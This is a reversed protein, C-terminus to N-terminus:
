KVWLEAGTGSFHLANLSVVDIWTVAANHVGTLTSIGM